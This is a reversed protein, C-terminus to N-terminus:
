TKKPRTGLSHSLDELEDRVRWLLRVVREAPVAPATRLGMEEEIKRRAGAVTFNERDLLDQIRQIIEVDKRRYIKRGAGTLGPEIFPFEKEWRELTAPDIKALRCVEDLHFFLKNSAKPNM